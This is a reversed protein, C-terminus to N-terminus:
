IVQVFFITHLQKKEIHHTLHITKLKWLLKQHLETWKMVFILDPVKALFNEQHALLALFGLQKKGMGWAALQMVRRISFTSAGTKYREVSAASLSVPRSCDSNISFPFVTGRTFRGARSEASFHSANNYLCPRSPSECTHKREEKTNFSNICIGVFHYM